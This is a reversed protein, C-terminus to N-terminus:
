YNWKIEGNGRLFKDRLAWLVSLEYPHYFLETHGQVEAVM